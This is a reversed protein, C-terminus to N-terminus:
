NQGSSLSSEVTAAVSERFSNLGESCQIMMTRDNGCLEEAGEEHFGNAWIEWEGKCMRWDPIHPGENSSYNLMQHHHFGKGSQHRRTLSFDVTQPPATLPGIEDDPELEPTEELIGLTEIFGGLNVLLIGIGLPLLSMEPLGM